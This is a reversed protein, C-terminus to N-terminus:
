VHARGIEYRNQLDRYGDLASLCPVCFTAWFDILVVEKGAHANLVFPKGNIDQLQFNPAQEARVSIALFLM